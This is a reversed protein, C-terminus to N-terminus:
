IPEVCRIDVEVSSAGLPVVFEKRVDRYGDRIGVAAYRGPKLNLQRQEIAGLRAIRPLSVQTIGDSSITVPKSERSAQLQQELTALQEGLRPGPSSINRGAAVIKLAKQYIEANALRLPDNSLTELAADMKLRQKAYALRKSADGLNGDIKLAASYATVAEAWQESEASREANKFHSAMANLAQENRVQKIAVAPQSEGPKLKAAANFSAIAAQRRGSDLNRYGESMLRTFNADQIRDALSTIRPSLVDARVGDLALAKELQKKAEDLNGQEEMADAAQLAAQVDDLVLLRELGAKAAQNDTDLVLAMDFAQRATESDNAVIALTGADLSDLTRQEVSNLLEDAIGLAKQFNDSAKLFDRKRYYDDGETALAVIQEFKKAAWLEVQLEELEFQKDLLPELAQQAAQRERASQAEQWPSSEAPLQSGEVAVDVSEDANTPSPPSQVLRPLLFIVALALLLLSGIAPLMWGSRSSLELSDSSNAVSEQASDLASFDLDIPAIEQYNNDAVSGASNVSPSKQATQDPDRNSSASRDSPARSM